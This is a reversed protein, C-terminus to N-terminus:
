TANIRHLVLGLIVQIPYYIKAKGFEKRVIKNQDALQDVIRQVAPKGVAKRLNDFINIVSYPRNQTNVYELIIPLADKESISKVKAARDRGYIEVERAEM